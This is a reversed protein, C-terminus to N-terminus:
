GGAVVGFLEIVDGAECLTLAWLSKPVVEGARVLAVSDLTIQQDELMSLLSANAPVQILQGNLSLSIESM